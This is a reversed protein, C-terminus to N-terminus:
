CCYKIDVRCATKKLQVGKGRKEKLQVEKGKIEKLQLGKNKNKTQKMATSTSNM